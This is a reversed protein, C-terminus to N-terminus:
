GNGPKNYFGLSNQDNSNDLNRGVGIPNPITVKTEALRLSQNMAGRQNRIARFQQNPITPLAYHTRALVIDNSGVNLAVYRRIFNFHWGRLM